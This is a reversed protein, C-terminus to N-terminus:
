GSVEIGGRVHDGGVDRGLRGECRREPAVRMRVVDEGRLVIGTEEVPEAVRLLVHSELHVPMAQRRPVLDDLPHLTGQQRMVAARERRREPRGEECAVPLPQERAELIGPRVEEGELADEEPSPVSSLLTSEIRRRTIIPNRTTDAGASASVTHSM